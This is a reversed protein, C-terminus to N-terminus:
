QNRSIIRDFHVQSDLVIFQTVESHGKSYITLRVIGIRTGYIFIYNDQSSSACFLMLYSGQMRYAKLFEAATNFMELMRIGNLDNPSICVLDGRDQYPAPTSASGVVVTPARTLTDTAANIATNVTAAQALFLLLALAVLSSQTAQM